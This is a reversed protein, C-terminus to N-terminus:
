SVPPCLAVEGRALLIYFSPRRWNVNEYKTKKINNNKANKTNENKKLVDLSESDKKV